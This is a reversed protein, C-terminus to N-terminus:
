LLAHPGYNETSYHVCLSCIPLQHPSPQVSLQPPVSLCLSEEDYFDFM